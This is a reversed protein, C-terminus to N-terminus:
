CGGTRAKIPISRDDREQPSTPRHRKVVTLCRFWLSHRTQGCLGMVITYVELTHWIPAHRRTPPVSCPLILLRASPRSLPKDHAIVILQQLRELDAFHIDRVTKDHRRHGGLHHVLEEDGFLDDVEVLRTGLTMSAEDGDTGGTHAVEVAGRRLVVVSGTSNACPVVLEVLTPLLHGVADMSSTRGLNSGLQLQVVLPTRVALGLQM